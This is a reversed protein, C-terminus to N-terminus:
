KDALNLKLNEWGASKIDEEDASEADFDEMLTLFSHAIDLNQVDNYGRECEECHLYLEGTETKKFIFLRGQSCFPCIKYWFMNSMYKVKHPPM